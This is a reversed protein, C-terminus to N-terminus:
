TGFQFYADNGQELCSLGLCTKGILKQFGRKIFETAVQANLVDKTWSFTLLLLVGCDGRNCGNLHYAAEVTV